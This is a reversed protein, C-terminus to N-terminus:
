KKADEAAKAAAEAKVAELKAAEAKAVEAKVRAAEEIKHLEKDAADKAKEAGAEIKKGAEKAAQGAADLAERGEEAAKKAAPSDGCGGLLGTLLVVMVQMGRARM